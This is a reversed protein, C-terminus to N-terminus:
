RRAVCPARRSRPTCECTPPPIQRPQDEQCRCTKLSPKSLGTMGVGTPPVRRQHVRHTLSVDPALLADTSPLLKGGGSAPVAAAHLPRM